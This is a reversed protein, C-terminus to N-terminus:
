CHGDLGGPEGIYALGDKEMDQWSVSVGSTESGPVINPRAIPIRCICHAVLQNLLNVKFQGPGLWSNWQDQLVSCLRDVVQVINFDGQLWKWCDPRGANCYSGLM